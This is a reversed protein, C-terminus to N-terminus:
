WSLFNYLILHVFRDMGCSLRSLHFQKATVYEISHEVFVELVQPFFCVDSEELSLLTAYHGSAQCCSVSAVFSDICLLVELFSAWSLVPLLLLSWVLLSVLTSSSPSPALATVQPRVGGSSPAPATLASVCRGQKVNWVLCKELAGVLLLKGSKDYCVRAQGASVVGFADGEEYRLYAKVM